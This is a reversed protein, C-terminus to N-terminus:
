ELAWAGEMCPAPSCVSERHGLSKGLRAIAPGSSPLVSPNYNGGFQSSTIGKGGKEERFFYIYLIIIM